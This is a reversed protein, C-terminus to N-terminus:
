PRVSVGVKDLGKLTDVRMIHRVEIHSGAAPVPAGKVEKEIQFSAGFGKGYWRGFQDCLEINVSDTHEVSDRDHYKVELWLNRFPYSQNHNVAIRMLCDPSVDSSDLTLTVSNGYIWGSEPLDAYASYENVNCATLVMFGLVGIGSIVNNRIM